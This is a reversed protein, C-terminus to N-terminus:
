TTVARRRVRALFNTDLKLNEERVIDLDVAQWGPWAHGAAQVIRGLRTKKELRRRMWAPAAAHRVALRDARGARLPFVCGPHARWTEFDRAYPWFAFNLVEVEGAHELAWAMWHAFRLVQNGLRGGGHTYIVQPPM